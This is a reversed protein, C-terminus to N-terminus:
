NNVKVYYYKYGNATKVKLLDGYKTVGTGDGITKIAEFNYDILVVKGDIIVAGCGNKINTADDYMKIVNGDLDYYGWKGDVTVIVSNNDNFSMSANTLVAKGTRPDILCYEKVDPRDINFNELDYHKIIVRDGYNFFYASSSFFPSLGDEIDWDGFGNLPTGGIKNLDADYIDIAIGGLMTPQWGAFIAIYGHNFGSIPAIVNYVIGEEMFYGDNTQETRDYYADTYGYSVFKPGRYIERWTVNGDKDLTGLLGKIATVRVIIEDEEADSWGLIEEKKTAIVDSADYDDITVENYVTLVGNEEGLVNTIGFNYEADSSRSGYTSLVLRNDYNYYEYRDFAYQISDGGESYRKVYYYGFVNVIDKGSAIQKGTKDFVYRVGKEDSLLFYGTDTPSQWSRGNYQCELIINGQCDMAGWGNESQVLVVGGNASSYSSYLSMDIPLEYITVKETPAPSPISTPVMTATPVPTSTPAKTATPVPTSTPAKTATPVPTSTPAKTATPVPTSTPAPTNTPVPTSTATPVPTSTPAPTATPVPTNTPAPTVTPEEAGIEDEPLAEIKSVVAEDAAEYKIITYVSFHDTKFTLVGDTVTCDLTKIVDGNVYLVKYSDGKAAKLTDSLPLSVEVVGDPQVKADKNDLISIDFSEVTTKTEKFLSDVAKAEVTTKEVPKVEVKSAEACSGEIKIDSGEAKLVVTPKPADTPKTDETPKVEDTPGPTQPAKSPDPEPTKSPASTGTPTKTPMEPTDQKKNGCGAISSLMMSFILLAILIKKNM